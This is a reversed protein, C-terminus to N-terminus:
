VRRWQHNPACVSLEEQNNHDAERERNIAWFLKDIEKQEVVPVLQGERVMTIRVPLPVQNKDPSAVPQSSKGFGWKRKGKKRGEGTRFMINFQIM